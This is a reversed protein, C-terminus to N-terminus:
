RGLPGLKEDLFVYAIEREERLFGHGRTHLVQRYNGEAGLMRFVGSVAEELREMAPRTFPEDQASYQWDNLAVINLISRPAILALYEHLDIPFPKGTLCYPRLAPRGVWWGTRANNYPNKSLRQPWEGCNCVGARIRPDLAMAHLTIGGGQSHGISGIRDPDVEEMTLLLDIARGVDHLDKGRVSWRPHQRYFPETEFARLGPYTREGASLLDYAMTIYGREALHVGYARNQGEETRDHGVTQEKGLPSTPHVCLIAPTRGSQGRPVLIYATIREGPGALYSVKRRVYAGCDTEELVEPSLPCPEEPACGLTQRFLDRLADAKATWEGATGIREVRSPGSGLTLSEGGKRIDLLDDFGLNDTM